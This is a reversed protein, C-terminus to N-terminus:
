PDSGELARRREQMFTVLAGFGEDRKGEGQSKPTIRQQAATLGLQDGLKIVLEAAPHAIPVSGIEDGDKSVLVREATLGSELLTRLGRSHLHLLGALSQAYPERLADLDGAEMAARFKAALDPHSVMDPLCVELAGGAADVQEKLACPHDESMPCLDRRCPHAIRRLPTAARGGHKWAAGRRQAREAESLPRGKPRGRRRPPDPPESM